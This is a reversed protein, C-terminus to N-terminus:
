PVVEQAADEAGTAQVQNEQLTLLLHFPATYLPYRPPNKTDTSQRTLTNQDDPITYLGDSRRYMRVIGRDPQM